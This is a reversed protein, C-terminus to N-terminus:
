DNKIFDRLIGKTVYMFGGPIALANAEEMDLIKFTYTIGERPEIYALKKGVGVVWSNLQQDYCLGYEAEVQQAAETGLEIEQETSILGAYSVSGSISVTILVTILILILKQRYKKELMKMVEKDLIVGNLINLASEIGNKYYLFNM